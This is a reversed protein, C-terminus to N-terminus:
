MGYIKRNNSMGLFRFGMAELFKGSDPNERCFAIVPLKTDKIYGALIKAYRWITRKPVNLNPAIDSFAEFYNKGYVIGAICALEGDVEVTWARISNELIHTHGHDPDDEQMKHFAIVDAMTSNRITIV